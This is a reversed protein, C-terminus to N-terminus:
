RSLISGGVVMVIPRSLSSLMACLLRMKSLRARSHSRRILIEPRWQEGPDVLGAIGQDRFRGISSSACGAVPAGRERSLGALWTVNRGFM